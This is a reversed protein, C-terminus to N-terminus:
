GLKPAPPVKRVTELMERLRKEVMGYVTGDPFEGDKMQKGAPWGTLLEIGEEVTRIPYVHFKKQRVAEVVEERLMLDSVNSEPMIVGQHGNLGRTHCIQFFGEIKLNIGGVPQVAGKQDVSGTVALCQDIPLGSLASLIAFVETASASDGDVDSYSQEFAVSATLTLPSRRGFKERFFGGIILVGKDHARGSYEAEREINIIGATGPAATATIRAPVGFAYSGYDYVQLGNIQGVQKGKVEIVLQGTTIAERVKEQWLNSRQEAARLAASVHRATVRRDSRKRCWYSAERLLDSIEGFRATLKGQKGAKRAGYEAVAAVAGQEFPALGEEQCMKGVFAAYQRLNKKNLDMEYDFDALVKFIKKFDPDNNYLSDYAGKDGILIVKVNIKIPEPTMTTAPVQLPTGEEYIELARNVLTRKLSQWVGPFRFVEEANLVLYGGDAKLLSGARIKRFDTAWLGSRDMAKEFYGFLRRYTPLNEIVVPCPERGVNDLIVNVDLLSLLDERAAQRGGARDDQSPEQPVPPFTLFESNQAIHDLAEAVHERITESDYRDAMARAPESLAGQLQSRDLAALESEMKELIKRGEKAVAELEGRLAMYCKTLGKAQTTSLRKERVLKELDAVPIAQEGVIPFLEPRSVDGERVRKLAFGEKEARREFKEILRDGEHEHRSILKERRKVHDEAELARHIIAIVGSKFKEMEKRFERGKGRPLIVLRPRDPQKFNHVYCRDLPLPCSSKINDLIKKVTSTRGTGTIGCVFVNYGPSYLEIGMKMARIARDQGIIGMPRGDTSPVSLDHKSPDCTWRLEAPTLERHRREDSPPTAKSM